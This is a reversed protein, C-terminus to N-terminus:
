VRNTTASFLFSIPFFSSTLSPPAPLPFPPPPRQRPNPDRVESEGHNGVSVMYPVASGVLSMMSMWADWLFVAGKAYGLDGYHAVFDVDGATDIRARLRLATGVAGPGGDPTDHETDGDLVYMSVSMDGYSAFTVPVEPGLEKGTM